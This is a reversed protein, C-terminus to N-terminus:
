RKFDVIQSVLIRKESENARKAKVLYQEIKNAFEVIDIETPYIGDPNKNNCQMFLRVIEDETM